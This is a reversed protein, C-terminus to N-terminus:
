YDKRGQRRLNRKHQKFFRGLRRDAERRARDDTRLQAYHREAALKHHSALRDRSLTGADVAERVACGPETEHRCDSFRCTRALTEVEDFTAQLADGDGLMGV